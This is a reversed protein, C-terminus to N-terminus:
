MISCARSSTNAAAPTTTAPPPPTPPTPTPPTSKSGFLRSFFGPQQAAPTEKKTSDTSPTTTTPKALTKTAPGRFSGRVGDVPRSGITQNGDRSTSTPAGSRSQHPLSSRRAVTPPPQKKQRNSSRPTEEEDDDDDEEEDEEEDEDSQKRQPTKQNLTESRPAKLSSSRRYANDDSESDDKPRSIPSTKSINRAPTPSVQEPKRINRTPPPSVQEPKRINRTPSPSAQEPKKKFSKPQEESSSKDDDSDRKKRSSPPNTEDFRTNRVPSRENSPLRNTTKRIDDIDKNLPATRDLAGTRLPKLDDDNSRLSTRNLSPTQTPRFKGNTITHTQNFTASKLSESLEKESKDDDDSEVRLNNSKGLPRVNQITTDISDGIQNSRNTLTQNRLNRAHSKPRQTISLTADLSFLNFNLFCFFSVELIKKM